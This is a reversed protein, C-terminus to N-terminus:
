VENDMIATRVNEVVTQLLQMEEDYAHLDKLLADRDIMNPYVEAISGDESQYIRVEYLTCSAGACRMSTEFDGGSGGFKPCHECPSDRNELVRFCDQGRLDGMNVRSIYNQSAIKLDDGVIIVGNCLADLFESDM